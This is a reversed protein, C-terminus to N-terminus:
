RGGRSGLILQLLIPVALGLLILPVGFILSYTEQFYAILGVGVVILLLGILLGITLRYAGDLGHGVEKHNENAM